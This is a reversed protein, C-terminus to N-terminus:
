FEEVPAEAKLEPEKKEDKKEDKGDGKKEDKKDDKKEDKKEDGQVHFTKLTKAKIDKSKTIKISETVEKM